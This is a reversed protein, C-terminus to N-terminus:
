ASMSRRRALQRVARRLQRGSLEMPVQVVGPYQRWGPIAALMVLRGVYRAPHRGWRPDVGPGVVLVSDAGDVADLSDGSRAVRIDGEAELLRCIGSLIEEGAAFVATDIM